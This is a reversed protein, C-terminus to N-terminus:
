VSSKTTKDQHTYHYLARLYLYETAKEMKRRSRFFCFLVISILLATILFNGTEINNRFEVFAAFIAVLMLSRFFKSDAIYRETNKVADADIKALFLEAWEM